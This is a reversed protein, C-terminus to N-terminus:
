ASRTYRHRSSGSRGAAHGALAAVSQEHRDVLNRRQLAARERVHGDIRRRAIQVYGVEVVGSHEEIAGRERRIGDGVVDPALRVEGAVVAVAPAADSRGVCLAQAEATRGVIPEDGPDGKVRVPVEPHDSGAVGQDRPDAGVPLDL